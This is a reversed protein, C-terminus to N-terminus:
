QIQTSVEIFYVFFSVLKFLVNLPTSEIETACDAFCSLEEPVTSFILKWITHVEDYTVSKRLHIEKLTLYRPLFFQRVIELWLTLSQDLLHHPNPFKHKELLQGMRAFAETASDRLLKQSEKSLQLSENSTTTTPPTEKAPPLPTPSGALFAKPVNNIKNSPALTFPDEM